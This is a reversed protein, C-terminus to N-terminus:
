MLHTLISSMVDVRNSVKRFLNLLRVHIVASVGRSPSDLRQLPHRDILKKEVPTPKRQVTSM